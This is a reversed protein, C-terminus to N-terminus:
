PNSSVERFEDGEVQVERDRLRRMLALFSSQQFKVNDEVEMQDVLHGAARALADAESAPDRPTQNDSEDPILDSGIRIQEHTSELPEALTTAEIHQEPEPIPQARQALQHELNNRAQEFAADFAADDVQPSNYQPKLQTPLPFMNNGSFNAHTLGRSSAYTPEVGTNTASQAQMHSMQAHQQHMLFENQWASQTAGAPPAHVQPPPRSINLNQFDSAWDAPATPHAHTMSAHPIPARLNAPHQMPPLAPAALSSEFAAFEPDLM